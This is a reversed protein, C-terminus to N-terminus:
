DSVQYKKVSENEINLENWTGLKVYGDWKYIWDCKQLHEFECKGGWINVCMLSKKGNRINWVKPFDLM